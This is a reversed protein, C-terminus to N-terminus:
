RAAEAKSCRRAELRAITFAIFEGIVRSDTSHFVDPIQLMGCDVVVPDISVVEGYARYCWGGVRDLSKIKDPNGAFMVDWSEGDELLSASIEVDFEDGIRPSSREDITFEDMVSLIGGSTAISAELWPGETSVLSVRMRNINQRVM